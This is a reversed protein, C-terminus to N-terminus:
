KIERLVEKAVIVLKKASDSRLYDIDLDNIRVRDLGDADKFLKLLRIARAKDQIPEDQINYLASHDYICHNKIVYKLIGLEENLFGQRIKLKKMKELSKLGHADDIGDYTRGIDHWLASYSLLARDKEDLGEMQSLIISHLLVRKIHLIGHIGDPNHFWHQNIESSKLQYYDLLLNEELMPLIHEKFGLFQMDM